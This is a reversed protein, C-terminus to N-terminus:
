PPAQGHTVIQKVDKVDQHTEEGTNAIQQLQVARAEDEARSATQQSKALGAIKANIDNAEHFSREAADAATASVARIQQMHIVLEARAREVVTALDRAVDVTHTVSYATLALNLVTFFLIAALFFPVPTM